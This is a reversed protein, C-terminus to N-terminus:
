PLSVPLTEREKKFDEHPLDIAWLAEALCQAFTSSPAEIDVIEHFTLHATLDVSWGKAPKHAKVCQAVGKELADKLVFPPRGITGVRGLGIGEGRGGGGEGVGSLGWALGETSPRTGPEVALYSTVPSVARGTMALRFQAEDDLSGHMDHSFVFAATAKSFALTAAVERRFPKAWINGHIIVRKPAKGMQQMERFGDGEELRSPLAAALKVGEIRFNDIRIPRVLGLAIADLAKERDGINDIHLLVGGAKKAIPALAHKDDRRDVVSRSGGHPLVVHTTATMRQMADLALSNNWSPRLLNDSLLVVTKNGRRRRMIKAALKIGEDLASGNGLAPWVDLKGIQGAAVFKGFVREAKRRVAVIEFRADPVHSLFSEALAVQSRLTGQSHSADLVFVVSLKKPLPRLQPATDIELRFFEQSQAAPVSGLRTAVTDIPPAKVSVTAMGRDGGSVADPLFKPPDKSAVRRGNLEISWGKLTGTDLGAHDSVVLRWTGKSSLAEDFSLEFTERVDNGSGSGTAFLQHWRGDPAVLELQLDGRYTHQVDVSVKAKTTQADDGIAIASGVYSAREDISRGRLWSPRKEEISLATLVGSKVPKGDIRPKDGDVRLMSMALHEGRPIRPYSMYYRGNKYSTPATLSYGVSSQGEAPVPFVRLALEGPWLWSLLAPDKLQHPGIGTLEQYLREARERRMLEGDLWHEGVKIRLGTAAANVPLSLRLSAEDPRKGANAFTREVRYRAVGDKIRLKAVHRTEKMPQSLTANFDDAPAPASLGLLAAIGLGVLAPRM